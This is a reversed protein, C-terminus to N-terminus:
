DDYGLRGTVGVIINREFLLFETNGCNICEDGQIKGEIKELVLESGHAGEAAQCFFQHFNGKPCPVIGEEEREGKDGELTRPMLLADGTQNAGLHATNLRLSQLQRLFSFCFSILSSISSILFSAAM